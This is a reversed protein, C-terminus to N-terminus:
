RGRDREAKRAPWDAVAIRPMEFRDSTRAYWSRGHMRGILRLAPTDVYFKTQDILGDRAHFHVARGLVVGRDPGTEVITHLRCEWAIPCEAIRPVAIQRSPAATLKAEALEDVGPPFDIACVNMKEAMAEDVLGITFEKRARVNDLTDKVAGPGRAEVAFALLPPDQGMANFFSFPAANTRGEADLTTVLAIPRPVITSVMLNYCHKPTLTGLDVDM